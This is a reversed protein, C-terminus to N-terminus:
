SAAPAEARTCGPRQLGTCALRPEGGIVSELFAMHEEPCVFDDKGAVPVSLAPYFLKHQIVRQSDQYGALIEITKAVQLEDDEVSDLIDVANSSNIVANRLKQGWTSSGHLKILSWKREPSCYDELTRFSVDYLDGLARELFLDYNTTVYVVQDYTSREAEGVLLDFHSGGSRIYHASVEGLLEQLYLPVQWYQRRLVRSHESALDRFVEELGDGGAVRSRITASLARARPYKSLVADFTPKPEFLQKVLPPRFGEDTQGTISSACDFSAGAGILVTLVRRDTM